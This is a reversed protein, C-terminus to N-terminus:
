VELDLDIKWRSSYLGKNECPKGLYQRLMQVASIGDNLFRRFHQHFTVKLNVHM